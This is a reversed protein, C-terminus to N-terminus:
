SVSEFLRVQSGCLLLLDNPNSKDWLAVSNKNNLLNRLLSTYSYSRDLVIADNYELYSREYTIIPYQDSSLSTDYLSEFYAVNENNVDDIILKSSQEVKWKGNFYNPYTIDIDGYGPIRSATKAIKERVSGDNQSTVLLTAYTLSKQVLFNLKNVTLYKLSQLASNHQHLLIFVFFATKVSLM